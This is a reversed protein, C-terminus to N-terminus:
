QHAGSAPFTPPQPLNFSRKASPGPQRYTTNAGYPTHSAHRSVFLASAQDQVSVGM